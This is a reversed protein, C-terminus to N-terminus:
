GSGGSFYAEPSPSDGPLTATTPHVGGKRRTVSSAGSSPANRWARAGSPAATANGCHRKWGWGTMRTATHARAMADRPHAALRMSAPVALSTASRKIWHLFFQLVYPVKKSKADSFRLSKGQINERTRREKQQEQQGSPEKKISAKRGQDIIEEPQHKLWRNM